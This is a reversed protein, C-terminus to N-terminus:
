TNTRKNETNQHKSMQPRTSGGLTLWNRSMMLLEGLLLSKLCLGVLGCDKGGAVEKTPSEYEPGSDIQDRVGTGTVM